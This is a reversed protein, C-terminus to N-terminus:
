VRDVPLPHLVRRDADLGNRLPRAPAPRVRRLLRHGSRDGAGRVAGDGPLGPDPGRPPPAPRGRLRLLRRPGHRDHGRGRRLVRQPCHALARSPAYSRRRLLLQPLLFLSVTVAVLPLAYAAALNPRSPFQFFLYLPTTIVQQRAPILLFAPTGFEAIAEVFSMLAGAIIAPRVLPLTIRWTTRLWNAGLLEASREMESP